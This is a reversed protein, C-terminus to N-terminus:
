PVTKVTYDKAKGSEDNSDDNGTKLRVPALTTTM